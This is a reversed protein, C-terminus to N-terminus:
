HTKKTLTTHHHPPPPITKDTLTLVCYDLDSRLQRLTVAYNGCPWQANTCGRGVLREVNGGETKTPLEQQTCTCYRFIDTHCCWMLSACNSFAKASASAMSLIHGAPSSSWRALCYSSTM